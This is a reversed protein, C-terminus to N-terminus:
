QQSSSMKQSFKHAWIEDTLPKEEVINEQVQFVKSVGHDQNNAITTIILKRLSSVIMRYWGRMTIMNATSLFTANFDTGKRSSLRRLKRRRLQM